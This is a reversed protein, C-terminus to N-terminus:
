PGGRCQEPLGVVWYLWGAQAALVGVVGATGIITLTGQPSLVEAPHVLDYGLAVVRGLHLLVALGASKRLWWCRNTWVGVVLGAVAAGGGATLVGFVPRSSGVWQGAWVLTSGAMGLAVWVALVLTRYRAFWDPAPVEKM